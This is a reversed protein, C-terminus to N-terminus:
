QRPLLFSRRELGPAEFEHLGLTVTFGGNGHGSFEGDDEMTHPDVAIIELPVGLFTRRSSAECEISPSSSPFTRDHVPDPHLRIHGSCRLTRGYALSEVGDSRHKRAGPITDTHGRLPAHDM